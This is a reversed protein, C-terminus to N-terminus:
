LEVTKALSIEEDSSSDERQQAKGSQSSDYDEEEEYSYYEYDYVDEEEYSYYEYEYESDDDKIVKKSAQKTLPTGHFSSKSVQKSIRNSTSGISFNQRSSSGSESSNLDDENQANNKIFEQLLSEQARIANKQSNMTAIKKKSISAPIRNGEPTKQVVKTVKYKVQSVSKGIKRKRVSLPQFQEENECENISRFSKKSDASETQVILPQDMNGGQKARKKEQYFFFVSAAISAIIIIPLLTAGAAIVGTRNYTATPTPPYRTRLPMDSLSFWLFFFIM